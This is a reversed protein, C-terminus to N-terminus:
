ALGVRLRSSPHLSLSPRIADPAPLAGNMIIADSPKPHKDRFPFFFAPSLHVQSLLSAVTNHASLIGLLDEIPEHLTPPHPKVLLLTARRM